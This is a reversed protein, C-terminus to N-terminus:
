DCNFSTKLKNTCLTEAYIGEVFDTHAYNKYSFWGSKLHMQPLILGLDLHLVIGFQGDPM